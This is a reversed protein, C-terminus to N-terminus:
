SEALGIAVLADGAVSLLWSGGPEIGDWALLLALWATAGGAINLAGIVRVLTPWKHAVVAFVTVVIGTVVLLTGAAQFREEDVGFWEAVQESGGLLIGAGAFEMLADLFLVARLSLRM